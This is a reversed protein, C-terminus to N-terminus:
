YYIVSFYSTTKMYPNRQLIGSNTHFLTTHNTTKLERMTDLLVAIAAPSDLYANNLKYLSDITNTDLAKKTIADNYEAQDSSLYHSFDVSAILVTDQDMLPAIAESLQKGELATTTGRIIIPVVTTTPLYYKIYPMIGAVSHETELVQEDIHVLNNKTLTHIDETSAAVVGFPTDWGIQSTLFKYTGAEKHNPGVVIIKTPSQKKLRAFFDSLMFSPYLHHPIIGGRISSETNFNNKEGHMGAFFLSAEYFILSHAPGTNQIQPQNTDTHLPVPPLAIGHWTSQVIYALIAGLPLLVLLWTTKNLSIKM